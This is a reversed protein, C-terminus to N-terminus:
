VWGTLSSRRAWPRSGTLAKQIVPAPTSACDTGGLASTVTSVRRSGGVRAAYQKAAAVGLTVGGVSALGLASLTLTLTAGLRELILSAVPQQAAFSFGFDLIDKFAFGNVECLSTMIKRNLSVDNLTLKLAMPIYYKWIM